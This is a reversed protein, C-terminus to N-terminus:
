SKRSRTSSKKKNNAHSGKRSKKKLKKRLHASLSIGLEEAEAELEEKHEQELFVKALTKKNEPTFREGCTQCYLTENCHPCTKIKM